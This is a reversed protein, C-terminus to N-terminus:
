STLKAIASKIRDARHAATDIPDDDSPLVDVGHTRATQQLCERVAPDILVLAALVGPSLEKGRLVGRYHVEAPIRIDLVGDELQKGAVAVLATLVAAGAADLLLRRGPFRPL